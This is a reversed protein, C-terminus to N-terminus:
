KKRETDKFIRKDLSTVFSFRVDTHQKSLLQHYIKRATAEQGDNYYSMIMSLYGSDYELKRKKLRPIVHDFHTVATAYDRLRYHEIGLRFYFEQKQAETLEPLQLGNELTRIAKKHSRFYSVYNKARILYDEPTRLRTFLGRYVAYILLFFSLAYVFYMTTSTESPPTFLPM